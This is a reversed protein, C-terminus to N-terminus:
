GGIDRDADGWGKVKIRLRKQQTVNLPLTKLEGEFLLLYESLDAQFHQDEPDLDRESVIEEVLDSLQEMSELPRVEMYDGEDRYVATFM